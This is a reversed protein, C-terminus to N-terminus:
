FFDEPNKPEIRALRDAEFAPWARAAAFNLALCLAQIEPPADSFPREPDYSGVADRILSAGIRLKRDQGLSLLPTFAQTDTALELKRIAPYVKDADQYQRKAMEQWFRVTELDEAASQRVAYDSVKYRDYADSFFKALPDDYATFRAADLVFTLGDKELVAILCVVGPVRNVRYSPMVISGCLFARESDPSGSYTISFVGRPSVSATRVSSLFAAPDTM